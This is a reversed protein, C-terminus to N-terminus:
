WSDSLHGVEPRLFFTIEWLSYSGMRKDHRQYTMCNVSSYLVTIRRVHTIPQLRLKTNLIAALSCCISVHNSSFSMPVRWRGIWIIDDGVKQSTRNLWRLARNAYCLVYHGKLTM